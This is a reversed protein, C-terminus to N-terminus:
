RAADGGGAPPAPATSGPVGGLPTRRPALFALYVIELLGGTNLILMVVYWITQGARAARWLALGKWILTWVVLLLLVGPPLELLRRGFPQFLSPPM